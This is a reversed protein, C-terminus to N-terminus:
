SVHPRERSDLAISTGGYTFVPEIADIAWQNGDWHAYKPTQSGSGPYYGLYSIHPRGASDVVVSPDWGYQNTGIFQVEWQAGDWHAYKLNNGKMDRYAVHPHDLSDLAIASSRGVRESDDAVTREWGAATRRAYMLVQADSDYYSIQATGDSGLALGVDMDFCSSAGDVEEIIWHWSAPGGKALSQGGAALTTLLVIALSLTLRARCRM